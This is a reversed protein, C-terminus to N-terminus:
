YNGTKAVDALSPKDKLDNYSGSAAVAALSAVKAYADLDGTKAYGNLDGSKAYGSLDATKAYNGLDAAKAYPQLVATDLAGAKICGSCDLSEAIAARQAYLASGLPQRALEPDSGITVGLWAASLNLGSASLPTKSGLQWTFQGAKATVAASETWVATGGSQQAYIALTLTYNGDAAPGGGASTLVGELTATAPVAASVPAAALLATLVLGLVVRHAGRFRFTM